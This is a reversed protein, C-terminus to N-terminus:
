FYLNFSFGLDLFSKSPIFTSGTYVTGTALSTKYSGNIAFGSNVGKIFHPTTYEMNFRASGITSSYYTYAPYAINYTFVNEQAPPVMLSHALPLSLATSLSIKFRENNTYKKYASLELAPEIYIIDLVHSASIDKQYQNYISTNFGYEFKLSKTNQPMIRYKLLGTYDSYRYNTGGLEMNRDKGKQYSIDIYLQQNYRTTQQGLLLSFNYTNLSFIGFLKNNESRTLPFLNKEQQQQYALRSRFYWSSDIFAYNLNFGKFESRRLVTSFGAITNYGYGMILYNVRDPYSLGKNFEENKYSVKNNEHEYGYLFGLSFSNKKQHYVLEPSLQLRFTEVAARPDVSRAATHYQYDIGSAIYFHEDPLQYTILGGMHYNIMKYKGAKGAAFYYPEARNPIGQMTWALSDQWSRSFEFQGYIKFRDLTTIGSTGFAYQRSQEPQQATRLHGKATAYRLSANSITKVPTSILQAASQSLYSLEQATQNYTYVSDAATKQAFVAAPLMMILLLGKIINM